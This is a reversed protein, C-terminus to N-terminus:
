PRKPARASAFAVPWATAMLIAGALLAIGSRAPVSGVTVSWAFIQTFLIPGVLGTLAILGTLAGQLRGQESAKVHRTQLSQLPPGCLNGLCSAVCAMCFQLGTTALGQGAFGIAAVALGLLLTTREGVREALRPAVIAMVFINGGGFAMLLLGVDVSTWHYRYGTYLVFLTIPASVALQILLTASALGLLAKDRALIGFSRIPNTVHLAVKTRLEPPLSEPLVFLGYVWGLAALAAAAFFPARPGIEGLLGGLAPGLIMGTSYIASLLGFRRSRQEPPTVDTLYAAAASYSAATLGSVARGVFLWAVNPSVAMVILDLSFGFASILIVPRRGYRDSLTGLVPSGVFNTIAWAGAMLGFVQAASATDGGSLTLVLKPVIPFILGFSLADLFVNVLIFGLAAARAPNSASL